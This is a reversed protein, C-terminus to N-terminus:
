HCTQSSTTSSPNGAASAPTPCPDKCDSTCKIKKDVYIVKAKEPSSPLPYPTVNVVQSISNESLNKGPAPFNQSSDSYEKKDIFKNKESHSFMSFFAMGGLIFLVALAIGGGVLSGIKTLEYAREGKKVIEWEKKLIERGHSMINNSGIHIKDRIRLLEARSESGKMKQRMLMMSRISDIAQEIENEIPSLLPENPKFHLKLFSLSRYLEQRLTHIKEESDGFKEMYHNRKVGDAETWPGAQEGYKKFIEDLGAGYQQHNVIISATSNINGVLDALCQRLSDCWGQRYDSTKGEKDNVLRVISLAATVIGVLLTVFVTLFVRDDQM